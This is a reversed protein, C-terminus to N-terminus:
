QGALQQTDSNERIETNSGYNIILTIITSGEPRVKTHPQLKEDLISVTFQTIKDSLCRLFYLDSFPITLTLRNNTIYRANFPIVQIIPSLLQGYSIGEVNELRIFFIDSSEYNTALYKPQAIWDSVNNKDFWQIRLGERLIINNQLYTVDSIGIVQVYTSPGFLFAKPQVYDRWAIFKCTQPVMKSILEDGPIIIIDYYNSTINRKIKINFKSGIIQTGPRWASFMLDLNHIATGIQDTESQDSKDDIFNETSIYFKEKVYIKKKSGEEIYYMEIEGLDVDDQPRFKKLVNEVIKKNTYMEGGKPPPPPPSPGDVTVPISIKSLAVSDVNVLSPRMTNSFMGANNDPYDGKNASSVLRIINNELEMDTYKLTLTTTGSIVPHPEGDLNTILIHLSNIQSLESGVYFYDTLFETTYRQSKKIESINVFFDNLSNVSQNAIQTSKTEESNIFFFSNTDLFTQNQEIKSADIFISIKTVGIYKVGTLYPNISNTFDNATNDPYLSLNASSVLRLPSEMM